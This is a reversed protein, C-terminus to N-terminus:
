VLQAGDIPSFCGLAPLTRLMQEGLEHLAFSALAARGFLTHAKIGWRGRILGGQMGGTVVWLLAFGIHIAFARDIHNKGDDQPYMDIFAFKGQASTPGLVCYSMLAITTTGYYKKTLLRTLPTSLTMFMTHCVLTRFFRAPTGFLLDVFGTCTCPKDTQSATAKADTPATSRAAAELGGDIASATTEQEMSGVLCM